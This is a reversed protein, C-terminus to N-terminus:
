GEDSRNLPLIDLVFFIPSSLAADASEEDDSFIDGYYNEEDSDSGDGGAQRTADGNATSVAVAPSNEGPQLQRPAGVAQTAAAIGPTATSCFLLGNLPSKESPAWGSPHLVHAGVGYRRLQRLLETTIAMSRNWHGYVVRSLGALAFTSLAAALADSTPQEYCLDIGFVCDRHPEPGPLAREINRRATECTLPRTEQDAANADNRPRLSWWDLACCTVASEPAVGGRGVFWGQSEARALEAGVQPMADAMDTMTVRAGPLARALAYALLGRGSGLELLRPPRQDWGLAALGRGDVLWRGFCSSGPWLRVHTHAGARQQAKTAVGDGCADSRRLDLLWQPELPELYGLPKPAPPTALLSVHHVVSATAVKSVALVAGASVAALLLTETSEVRPLFGPASAM